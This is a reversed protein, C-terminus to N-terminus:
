GVCYSFLPRCGGGLSPGIVGAEGGGGGAQKARWTLQKFQIHLLECMWVLEIVVTIM